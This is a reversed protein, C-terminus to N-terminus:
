RNVQEDRRYYLESTSTRVYQPKFKTTPVDNIEGGEDDDESSSSFSEITSFDILCSKMEVYEHYEDEIKTYNSRRRKSTPSERRQDNRVPPLESNYPRKNGFQKVPNDRFSNRKRDQYDNNVPPPYRVIEIFLFLDLSDFIM